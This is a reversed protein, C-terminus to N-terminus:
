VVNHLKSGPGIDGSPRNPPAVYQFRSEILKVLDYSLKLSAVGEEGNLLQRLELRAALNM